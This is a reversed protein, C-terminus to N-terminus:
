QVSMYFVCNHWLMKQVRNNYTADVLASFSFSLFIFTERSKWDAKCLGYVQKM